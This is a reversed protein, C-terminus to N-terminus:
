GALVRRYVAAVGQAMARDSFREAHRRHANCSMARYDIDGRVIRGIARTLDDPHNPEAILGDIGDRIAEPIGEVRTAVVPVGAAMAELVVMPMGEGFLSPLVFLDMRGLEADVDDTFGVWDIYQGIGLRYALLKVQAEYQETEFRGVARLRVPFGLTRLQALSRLLVELGKRPRFLAVTGLTWEAPPAPDAQPAPAAPVGNPVVTVKGQAARRSGVHRGLSESVAIMASARLTSCREVLLNLWNRVRRTTDRAVPSHVHCVMPVGTLKSVIAALMASRPTHAHILRYGETRVIRALEAVPRLDFRNRMAVEYLKTKTAKRVTAFQGRKLCALGVEYGFEGLRLALLDQVREAGAYHEGNIVHLVKVASGAPLANKQGTHPIARDLVATSM